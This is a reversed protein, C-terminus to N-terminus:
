SSRPRCSRSRIWRRARNKSVPKLEAKGGDADEEVGGDAGVAAASPTAKTPAMPKRVMAEVRPVFSILRM